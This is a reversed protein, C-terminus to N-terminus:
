IERRVRTIKGQVAKAYNMDGRAYCTESIRDTDVIMELLHGDPGTWGDHGATDKYQKSDAIIFWTPKGGVTILLKDGPKGYRQGIAICICNDIRLLGDDGKVAKHLLEYQKSSTDTVCRYDEWRKVSSTSAVPLEQYTILRTAHIMGQPQYGAEAKSEAFVPKAIGPDFSLV